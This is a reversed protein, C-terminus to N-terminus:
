ELYLEIKMNETVPTGAPPYQDYVWGDGNIQIRLDERELLPLILRKPVDTFDPITDQITIPADAKISILGSHALSSANSRAMGFHDIIVDATKAIVPAVIRGAYTEGKAKTIVIYLIIKPDEIPFIAMCNSVFDTESYGGKETDMMQATGTKVGISIDGLSARAGTGSTATTEMFSLINNATYESIVPKKYEPVHEYVTEGTKDAMRSILTITIPIGKNTISTAAQVMQLASVSIEQGISITPKSRLSWLRDETTKVSGRTESPLEIGTKSGFGFSRIMQLFTEADIKESMQALADNCSYKLAERATVWGHNGLCTIRAQTKNGSKIQHVGDCYFREDPTIAGTEIFSAVSFIKFVSGPEYAYTAPRDMREEDTATTYQNLNTTPLSIYSYIEGNQADCAILMLSEAQTEEITEKAIQELKYQLNADITLYIDKGRIEKSDKTYPPSLITQNSFEIGSLGKEDDGLFGIVQAALSNEPYSRGQIKDFRLGYIKNEKIMATIADYDNQDLKKKLYLFNYKSETLMKLITEKDMHLYPALLQSTNEKDEIVSPTASLHYYNTSVALVKGNRDLIAGREIEVPSEQEIKIESFALKGYSFLIYLLFLGLFSSFIIIRKKSYFESVQM